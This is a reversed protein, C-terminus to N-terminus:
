TATANALASEYRWNCSVWCCSTSRSFSAASPESTAPTACSNFVGIPLLRTIALVSSSLVTSISVSL